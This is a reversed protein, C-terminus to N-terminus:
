CLHKWDCVSCGPKRVLSVCGVGRVRVHSESWCAKNGQANEEISICTGAQQCRRTRPLCASTNDSCNVSHPLWSPLPSDRGPLCCPEEQTILSNSWCGRHRLGCLGWGLNLFFDTPTKADSMRQQWCIDPVAVRREAISKTGGELVCIRNDFVDM